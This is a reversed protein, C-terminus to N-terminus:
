ASSRLRRSRRTNRSLHNRALSRNECLHAGIFASFIDTRARRVPGIANSNIIERWLSATSASRLAIPNSTRVDRVASFDDNPSLTQLKALAREFLRVNTPPPVPAAAIDTAGLPALRLQPVSQAIAGDVCLGVLGLIAIFGATAPFQLLGRVRV